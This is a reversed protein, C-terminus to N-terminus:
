QHHNRLNINLAKHYAFFANVNVSEDVKPNCSGVNEAHTVLCNFEIGGLRRKCFSCMYVDGVFYAHYQGSQL